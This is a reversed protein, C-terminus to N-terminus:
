SRAARTVAAANHWADTCQKSLQVRHERLCEMRAKGPSANPCLVSWDAACAQRMAQRAAKVDPDVPLSQSAHPPSGENSVQSTQAIAPCATVILAACVLASLRM